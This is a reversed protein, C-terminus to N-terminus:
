LKYHSLVKQIVQTSTELSGEMWGQTESFNEGCVYVPISDLPQLM